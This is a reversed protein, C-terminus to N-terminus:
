LKAKEAAERRKVEDFVAQQNKMSTATMVQTMAEDCFPVQDRFYHNKGNVEVALGYNDENTVRKGASDQVNGGNVLMEVTEAIKSIPTFYEEPFSKWEDALLLNTRVTGPCIAYARIGEQHFSYAISRVFHVVGAKSASYVPTYESPYLGGCSATMVISAGQGKHPSLRFYHLALYTTSIVATLNIDLTLTNPAPPPQSGQTTQKEYFSHREVIGANAFVFDIQGESDFVSQFVSALSDYSTVNVHHVKAGPIAELATKAAAPNYDLLHLKWKGTQALRKATELGMGSCGGTIIAVKSTM